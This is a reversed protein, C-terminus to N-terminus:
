MELEFDRLVKDERFINYFEEKRSKSLPKTGNSVQEVISEKNTQFIEGQESIEYFFNFNNKDSFIWYVKIKSNETACAFIKPEIEQIEEKEICKLIFKKFCDNKELCYLQNQSMNKAIFDIKYKTLEKGCLYQIGLEKRLKESESNDKKDLLSLEQKLMEAYEETYM